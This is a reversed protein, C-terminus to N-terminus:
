RPQEAPRLGHSTLLTALVAPNLPSSAGEPFQSILTPTHLSDGESSSYKYM